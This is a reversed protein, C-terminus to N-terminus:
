AHPVGIGARGTLLRDALARYAATAASTPELASLPRRAALAYKVGVTMPIADALLDAYAADLGEMSRRDNGDNRVASPLILVRAAAGLEALREVVDLTDGLADIDTQALLTPTVVISAALIASNSAFGLSPPTDIIIVDYDAVGALLKRLRFPGTPDDNLAFASTEVSRDGPALDIGPAVPRTLGTVGLRPTLLREGIGRAGDADDGLILRTLSAQPDLDILLVRLGKDALVGSLNFSTTTKGSGGKRSAVAIILPPRPVPGQTATM